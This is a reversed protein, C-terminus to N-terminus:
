FMMLTCMFEGTSNQMQKTHDGAYVVIGYIYETYHLVTGRLLINKATLPFKKDDSDHLIITGNFSLIANNPPEAEITVRLKGLATPDTLSATEPLAQRLKLNSEGDLSSTEVYCMGKSLIFIVSLVKLVYGKM